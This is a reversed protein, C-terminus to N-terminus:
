LQLKQQRDLPQQQRLQLLEVKVFGYYNNNYDCCYSNCTWSYYSNTCTIANKTTTHTFSMISSNNLDTLQYVEIETTLWKEYSGALYSRECHWSDSSDTCKSPCEYSNCFYSSSSPQINSNDCIYIDYGGGFSPGSSYSAYISYSSQWSDFKLNFKENNSVGNRRLSFLFAKEDSVWDDISNWYASTFGGFVYNSDTKIITITKSVSDCKRHFSSANFGDRTARYLLRANKFSLSVM